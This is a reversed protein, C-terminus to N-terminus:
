SKLSPLLLLWSGQGSVASREPGAAPAVWEM